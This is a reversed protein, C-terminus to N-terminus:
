GSDAEDAPDRVAVLTAFRQSAHLFFGMMRDFTLREDASGELRLRSKSLKYAMDAIDEGGAIRGPRCAEPLQALEDPRWTALYDRVVDVLDKETRADDVTHRWVNPLLAFTGSRSGAIDMM